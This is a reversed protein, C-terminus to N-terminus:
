PMGTGVIEGRGVKSAADTIATELEKAVVLENLRWGLAEKEMALKAAAEQQLSALSEQAKKLEPEIEAGKERKLARDASDVARKVGALVEPDVSRWFVPNQFQPNALAETAAEREHRTRVRGIHM